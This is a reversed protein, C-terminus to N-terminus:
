KWFRYQLNSHGGTAIGFQYWPELLAHARFLNTCPNNSPSGLQEGNNNNNNNNYRERVQTGDQGGTCVVGGPGLM